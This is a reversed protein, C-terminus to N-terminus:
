LRQWLCAQTAQRKHRQFDQQRKLDNSIVDKLLLADSDATVIIIVM